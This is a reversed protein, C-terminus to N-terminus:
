IVWTESWIRKDNPWVHLYKNQWPDGPDRRRWASVSFWRSVDSVLVMERRYGDRRWCGLVMRRYICPMNFAEYSEDYAIHGTARLPRRSLETRLPLCHRNGFIHESVVWKEGWREGVTTIVKERLCLQRMWSVVMVMSVGAWCCYRTLPCLGTSLSGSRIHTRRVISPSSQSKRSVGGSVLSRGRCCDTSRLYTFASASVRIPWHKKFAVHTM